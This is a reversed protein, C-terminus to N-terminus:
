HIVSSYHSVGLQCPAASDLRSLATTTTGPAPATQKRANVTVSSDATSDVRAAKPLVPAPFLKQSVIIVIAALVLAFFFINKM